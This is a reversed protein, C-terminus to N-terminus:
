QQSRVEGATRCHRRGERYSKAGRLTARRLECTASRATRWRCIARGNPMALIPKRWGSWSPSAISSKLAGVFDGQALQADGVKDYSVSMERQWMINSLYFQALRDIIALSDRYSKMAGALDRQAM